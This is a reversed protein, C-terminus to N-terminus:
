KARTGKSKEAKKAAKSKMLSLIAKDEADPEFSLLDGPQCELVTCLKSLVPLSISDQTEKKSINWLTVYPVGTTQALKYLTFGKQEALENLKIFIMQQKM